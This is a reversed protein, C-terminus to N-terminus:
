DLKIGAAQVIKRIRPIEARILADFEAPGLPAADIGQKFLSERVEALQLARVIEAGLRDVTEKPVASRAFVGLKGTLEFQPYGSEAMTPVEPVLPTRAQSTVALPRLKNTRLHPTATAITSVLITNHGGLVSLASPGGGQYPVHVLDIGASQKLMEGTVHQSSGPGNTAYTLQGPKARALAILEKMTRAPLSPHVTIIYPDAGIRAVGVFDKQADFPLKTRMVANAIFTFGAILVTHGDAPARAVLETGIMTSAGPRNDIVVSQGFAKALPQQLARGSVDVSGSPPFPVVIRIPKSPFTQAAASAALAMLLSSAAAAVPNRNSTM